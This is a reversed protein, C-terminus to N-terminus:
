SLLLLLLPPVLLLVQKIAAATAKRHTRNWAILQFMRCWWQMYAYLVDNWHEVYSWGDTRFDYVIRWQKQGAHYFSHYWYWILMSVKYISLSDRQTTSWELRIYPYQMLNQRGNDANMSYKHLLHTYRLWQFSLAFSVCANTYICLRIGNTAVSPLALRFMYFLKWFKCQTWCVCM